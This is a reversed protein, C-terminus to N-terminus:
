WEIKESKVEEFDLDCDVLSSVMDATLGLMESMKKIQQERTMQEMRQKEIIPNPLKGILKYDRLCDQYLYSEFYDMCFKLMVTCRRKLQVITEKEESFVNGFFNDIDLTTTIIMLKCELVKNKYRSKVTSATHNDLMKLLDSLGMCSPRLDDLIICDQGKYDDLPDNSSSSVYVSYNKQEAIIKAYSTKGTGSDGTIFICDMKRAVGKIKDLRYKFANDISRKYKDYEIISIYDFYNFERIEGSVILNIIENRRHNSDKEIKERRFDFNSVVCDESYQYKEPANEHTLYSLADAFKGKIKCLYHEQVGFWNAVYKSDYSDNFRMMLHLHPEKLTGDEKLDKDHVIMAYDKIAKHENLVKNVLEMNLYKIQQCLEMNRTKM